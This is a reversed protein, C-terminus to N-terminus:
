RRNHLQGKTKKKCLHYIQQTHEDEVVYQLLLHQNLTDHGHSIQDNKQLDVLTFLNNDPFINNKFNM